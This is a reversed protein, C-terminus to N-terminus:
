QKQSVEVGLRAKLGEMESRLQQLQEALSDKETKLERLAQLMLMPLEEYNLTKFGHPGQAVLEPLVKEVEQAILGTKRGSGLHLEPFEEARFEFSVPQLQALKDLVPAFPEINKKLRADSFDLACNTYWCRIGLWQYNGDDKQGCASLQNLPGVNGVGDYLGFYLSGRTTSDCAASAGRRTRRCKSGTHRPM